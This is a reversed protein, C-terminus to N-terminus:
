QNEKLIKVTYNPSNGDTENLWLSLRDGVNLSKLEKIQEDNLGVQHSTFLGEKQTRWFGIRM